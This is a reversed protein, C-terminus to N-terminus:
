AGLTDAKIRSRWLSDVYLADKGCVFLNWKM